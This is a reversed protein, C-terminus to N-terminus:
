QARVGPPFGFSLSSFTTEFDAQPNGTIPRTWIVNFQWVGSRPATFRALGRADTRATAVPTSDADLNNLKVLAGALPRGQWLVLIPLDEGARLRYPDRQPVLELSLGIPRTVQPQPVGTAPGVQILTKARRTYTERGPDNTRGGQARAQIAPTLGEDQLYSNFRIAPLESNAFTSELALIYTGAAPMSIQADQELGRQRLEPLHDVTGGPGFTRFSLVRSVAVGWRERYVGHGVWLQVLATGPGPLWFARPQLWFDHALAPAAIAALAAVIAILKKM